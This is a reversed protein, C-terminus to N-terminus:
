QTLALDHQSLREYGSDTILYTREVRIGAGAVYQGPELTLVDGPLLVDSSEPVIYPPDPHGLGLGHGSHSLLNTGLEGFSERVARDVLRCENGARLSAEGAALAQLCAEHLRTQEPSPRAGCVFTAGLDARYGGIVVSFDVLVLEGQELRRATPAGGIRECRPGSLFHGYVLVQEGADTQAAQQVLQFLELESMGPRADRRAASHGAEGARVSRKLLELEDADKSRQLRQLIPEIAMFEVDPRQSRLADSLALPVSAADCAIRAGRRCVEGLIDRCLLGRRNPASRKGEYWLSLAVEDVDATNAYPALLNDAFLTARGRDLLLYAAANVGRFEFPSPYYGSLYTVHRPDCVLIVDANDDLEAWLRARRAEPGTRPPM